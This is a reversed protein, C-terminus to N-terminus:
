LYLTCLLFNSVSRIFKFNNCIITCLHFTSMQFFYLSIYNALNSVIYTYIVTCFHFISIRCSYLFTYYILDSLHLIYLQLFHFIPLFAQFFIFIQNLKIFGIYNYLHLIILFTKSILM